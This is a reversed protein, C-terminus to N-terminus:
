RAALPARLPLDTGSQVVQAARRTVQDVVIPALLNATAEAPAAGVSVVLLVLVQNPARLDLLAVTDDDVEPQYDPFFPAPAVVLFRLAPDDLARLAYLLGAEDMRTLVFRRHDPFGPMPRVFEIVPLEATPDTGSDATM